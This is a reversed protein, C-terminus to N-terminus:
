RGCRRGGRRTRRARGRRDALRPEPRRAQRACRRGDGRAQETEVFIAKAGSDSLIWEVQEASSTEYIPVSVAGAAQIAYDIQTWEYRTRSMLAVRDGPEIGAAVLGKATAVVDSRFEAATVDRWGDGDKRRLAVAQPEDDARKFVIDTLNASDPIQVLAPTSYERM